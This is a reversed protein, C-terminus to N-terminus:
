CESRARCYPGSSTWLAHDLRLSGSRGPLDGRVVLVRDHVRPGAGAADGVTSPKGHAHTAIYGATASAAITNLLATGM